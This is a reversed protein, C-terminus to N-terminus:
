TAGKGYIEALAQRAAHLRSMVTGEAIELTEAIDRYSCEGFYRLELIERQLPTLHSLHGLLEEADDPDPGAPAALGVWMRPLFAWRLKRRRALDLCCNRLIAFWWGRFPRGHDYSDMAEYGKLLADQVADEADARNRVLAHAYATADGMLPEVWEEFQSRPDDARPGM